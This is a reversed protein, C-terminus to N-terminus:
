SVQGPQVMFRVEGPEPMQHSFCLSSESGQGAMLWSHSEPVKGLRWTKLKEATLHLLLVSTVPSDTTLNRPVM